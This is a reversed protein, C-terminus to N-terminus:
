KARKPILIQEVFQRTSAWPIGSQRTPCRRVLLWPNPAVSSPHPAGWVYRTLEGLVENTQLDLVKVTSGAVGLAREEPVVHDEFTVGYRPSPEPTPTKDLVWLNIIHTKGDGGRMKSFERPVDKYSGTVRYRKGDTEDIVDVYRYSPPDEGRLFTAIYEDNKAEDAFAAGPFMQATENERPGVTRLKLLVIGEVDPVTKYIKAGAVTRCKEEFLTRAKNVFAREADEAQKQHWAWRGPFAIFLGLVVAVATAKGAKSKPVLVAVLAAVIVMLWFLGGILRFLDAGPGLEIM